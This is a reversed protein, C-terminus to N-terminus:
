KGFFHIAKMHIHRKKDFYTQFNENKKNCSFLLHHLSCNNLLSVDRREGEKKMDKDAWRLRGSKVEALQLSDRCASPLATVSTGQNQPSVLISQGDETELGLVSSIPSM